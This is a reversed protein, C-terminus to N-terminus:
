QGEKQEVPQAYKFNIAGQYGKITVDSLKKISVELGYYTLTDYVGNRMLLANEMNVPDGIATIEFPESYRNNNVSVTAGACRVESTALLREGNLALAEAGADRLENIVSLLDGDHIVELNPNDFIQEKNRSDRLTVNIGPGKVETLGAIVQAKQLQQSMTKLTGEEQSSADQYTKLTEKLELVQMLYEESKKQQSRLEAQVVDIRKSDASSVERNRIVSRVQLTVAFAMLLCVVGIAINAASFKKM